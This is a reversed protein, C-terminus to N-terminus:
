EPKIAASKFEPCNKKLDNLASKANENAPDLIVIKDWYKLSECYQKNVLYYYGLYNYAELIDKGYKVSDISAKEILKEYFPKALGQETDPDLNSYVRARFLYAPEFDVSMRNVMAFASDAEAWNKADFYARGMKYYDNVGGTSSQIKLKYTDGAEQHRKSKIYAGAIESLLDMNTSDIEFSKTLNIIGLSDQGNKIQIRGYYLYDKSSVKEAPANKFFKAIYYNAQPYQKEEYYSYALARNLDNYTVSDTALIQQIQVIAEKYDETQILM